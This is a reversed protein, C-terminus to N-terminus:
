HYVFLKVKLNLRAFICISLIVTGTKQFDTIANIEKRIYLFYLINLLILVLTFYGGFLAKMKLIYRYTSLLSYCKKM